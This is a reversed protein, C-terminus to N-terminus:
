HISMLTLGFSADVAGEGGNRLANSFIGGGVAGAEEGGDQLADSCLM